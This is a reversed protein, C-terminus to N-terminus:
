KLEQRNRAGQIFEMYTVISIQRDDISEVLKAAGEHGRFVWIVVDTDFIM